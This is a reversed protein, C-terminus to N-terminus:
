QDNRQLFKGGASKMNELTDTGQLPLTGVEFRMGPLHIQCLQRRGEGRV